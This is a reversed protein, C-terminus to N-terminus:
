RKNGRDEYPWKDPFPLSTVTVAKRPQHLPHIHASWLPPLAFAQESVDSKVWLRLVVQSIDEFHCFPDVALTALVQNDTAVNEVISKCSRTRSMKGKKYCGDFRVEGCLLIAGDATCAGDWPINPNFWPVSYDFKSYIAICLGGHLNHSHMFHM